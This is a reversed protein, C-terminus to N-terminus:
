RLRIVDGTKIERSKLVPNMRKLASERIGYMQSVSHRSDGAQATYLEAYINRGKKGKIYVRDGAKLPITATLDNYRLLRELPINYDDSLIQWTDDQQVEVYKVSNINGWVRMGQKEVEPADGEGKYIKSGIIGESQEPADFRYLKNREILSILINAYEPNTAYGAAKLGHAWGKYDTPLLEFLSAYRKNDRLFDSHDRYSHEVSKYKRFCEGSHDDDHYIREGKWKSGCKIGFHNNAQVALRSGGYGSELMGQAITISAPIGYLEMKEIAIDKYAKTYEEPTMKGQGYLGLSVTLLLATIFYKM